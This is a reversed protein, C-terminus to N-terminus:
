RTANERGATKETPALECFIAGSLVSTIGHNATPLKIKGCTLEILCSACIHSYGYQPNDQFLRSRQDGCRSCCKLLMNHHAIDITSEEINRIIALMAAANIPNELCPCIDQHEEMSESFFKDTHLTYLFIPSQSSFARMKKYIVEASADQICKSILVLQFINKVYLNLASLSSKEITLTHSIIEPYILQWKHRNMEDPELVMINM